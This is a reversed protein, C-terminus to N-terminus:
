MDRHYVIPDLPPPGKELGPYPPPPETPPCIFNPPYCEDLVQFDYYRSLEPETIAFISETRCTVAEIYPPAAENSPAVPVPGDDMPPYPYGIEFHMRHRRKFVYFIYILLSFSMCPLAIYLMVHELLM